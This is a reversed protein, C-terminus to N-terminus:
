TYFYNEMRFVPRLDGICLELVSLTDVRSFLTLFFIHLPNASGGKNKSCKCKCKYKKRKKLNRCNLSLEGKDCKFGTSLRWVTEDWENLLRRVRHVCLLLIYLM